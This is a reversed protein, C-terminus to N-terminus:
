WTSYRVCSTTYGGGRYHKYYKRKHHYMFEHPMLPPYTIWTHGVMPPTPRPSIYLQAPQGAGYITPGNYFNYFIDPHAAEAQSTGVVCWFTGLAALALMARLTTRKM